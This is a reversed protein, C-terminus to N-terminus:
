RNRKRRTHKSLDRYYEVAPGQLASILSKVFRQIDVPNPSPPLTFVNRPDLGTAKRISSIRYNADDLLPGDEFLFVVVFRTKYGSQAWDRKLSNIEIKLQNDKLSAMNTDTTLPYFNIFAAPVLCQHKTIWKPTIIGDPFVESGPTLPSLPSHLVLPAALGDEYDQATTSAAAAPRAAKQPPLTYTRDARRIRYGVGNSRHSFYRSNWPWKSADEALLADLLGDATAGTILPFDSFIRVGGDPSGASLEPDPSHQDPSSAPSLGSLLVLPLNHDVYSAPFADM